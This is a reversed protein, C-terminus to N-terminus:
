RAAAANDSMADIDVRDPSGSGYQAGLARVFIHASPVGDAVLATRVAMARALSLRRASSPDDKAGPAYAQVNFTATENSAASTAFQKISAASDPSLDSQGPDFTLRLGAPTPAASTGASASVPPPPPPAAAPPPAIPTISATEPTQEPLAPSPAPPTPADTAQPGATVTAASGGALPPVSATQAASPTHARPATNAVQPATNSAQPATNSAQPAPPEVRPLRVVPNAARQPLAQLAHLDVTVQAVASAAPLLTLACLIAFSRM